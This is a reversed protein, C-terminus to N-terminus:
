TIRIFARSSIATPIPMGASAMNRGMRSSDKMSKETVGTTLEKAMHTTIKLYAKMSIETKLLVAAEVSESIMNFTDKIFIREKYQYDMVMSKAERTNETIHSLQHLANFAGITKICAPTHLFSFCTTSQKRSNGMFCM